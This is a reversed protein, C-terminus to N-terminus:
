HLRYYVHYQLAKQDCPLVPSNPAFSTWAAQAVLALDMRLFNAEERM